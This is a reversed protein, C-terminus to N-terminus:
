LLHGALSARFAARALHEAAPAAVTGNPTTSTPAAQLCWLLIGGLRVCSGHMPSLTSLRCRFSCHLRARPGDWSLWRFTWIWSRFSCCASGKVAGWKRTTCWRVEQPCCRCCYSSPRALLFQALAHLMRCHSASHLGDCLHDDPFVTVRELGSSDTWPLLSFCLRWRGWLPITQSDAFSGLQTPDAISHYFFLCNIIEGWLM